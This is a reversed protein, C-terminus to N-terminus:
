RAPPLLDSPPLPPRPASMDLMREDERQVVNHDFFHIFTEHGDPATVIAYGEVVRKRSEIGAGGNHLYDLWQRAEVPDCSHRPSRPAGVVVTSGPPFDIAAHSSQSFHRYLGAALAAAFVVFLAGLLFSRM